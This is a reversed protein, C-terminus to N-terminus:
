YQNECRSFKPSAMRLIVIDKSAIAATMKTVVPAAEAAARDEFAIHRAAALVVRTDLTWQRM